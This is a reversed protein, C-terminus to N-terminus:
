NSPFLRSPSASLLPLGSLVTLKFFCSRELKVTSGRLEVGGGGYPFRFALCAINLYTHFIGYFPAKLPGNGLEDDM